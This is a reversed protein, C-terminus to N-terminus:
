AILPYEGTAEQDSLRFQFGRYRPSGRCRLVKLELQLLFIPRPFFFIYNETIPHVFLPPPTITEAAGGLGNFILSNHAAGRRWTM